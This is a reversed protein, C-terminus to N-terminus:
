HLHCSKLEFPKWGWLHLSGREFISPWWSGSLQVPIEAFLLVLLVGAVKVGKREGITKHKIRAAQPVSDPRGLFNGRYFM